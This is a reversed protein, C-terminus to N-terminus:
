YGQSVINAIGAIGFAALDPFIQSFRAFESFYRALNIWKAMLLENCM